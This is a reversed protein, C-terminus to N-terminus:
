NINVIKIGFNDGAAVLVGGAIIKGNLMLAVPDSIMQNLELISGSKLAYLEELTIKKSGVVVELEVQANKILEFNKSLLSDGTESRALDPYEITSINM